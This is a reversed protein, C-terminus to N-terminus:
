PHLAHLVGDTGGFLLYGDAWVPGAGAPVKTPYTALVVGTAADLLALDNTTAPSAFSFTDTALVGSGDLASNGVVPGDALGTQWLVAGTAPDLERAVAPYAVAAVTSRNATVLLHSGDWAATALCADNASAKAGLAISWVPGKALASQSWAYFVGDKDCAGVMPTPTGQLTATFLTPSGGFDSDLISVGPVTWHDVPRLTAPNLRVVSNSLGQTTPQKQNGNGTTVFVGLPSVAVTSWVSGGVSGAAVTWFTALRAGTSQAFSVLGGRILPNDCGSAMGIFVRGNAVTPSGWVFSGLATPQPFVPAQWEVAGSAGDVAWLLGNGSAFYVTPRGSTPDAVVTATDEIGNPPSCTGPPPAGTDLSWAVVGTDEHLAYFIGTNSGIYVLGGSVVPSGDFGARSRGTAPPPTVFQWTRSLASANAPTVSTAKRNFSSHAGNFGFASWPATGDSQASGTAGAGTTMGTGLAAVLACVCAVAAM